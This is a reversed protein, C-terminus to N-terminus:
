HDTGKKQKEMYWQHTLDDARQRTRELRVRRELRIGTIDSTNSLTIGTGDLSLPKVHNLFDLGFNLLCGISYSFINTHWIDFLPCFGTYTFYKCFLVSCCLFRYGRRNFLSFLHVGKSLLCISPESGYSFANKMVYSPFAFWFLSSIIMECWHSHCIDSLSFIVM